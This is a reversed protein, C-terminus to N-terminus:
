TKKSELKSLQFLRKPAGMILTWIFIIKLDKNQQLFILANLTVNKNIKDLKTLDFYSSQRIKIDISHM